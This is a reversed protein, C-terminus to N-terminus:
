WDKEVDSQRGKRDQMRFLQLSKERAKLADLIRETEKPSAEEVGLVEADGVDEDTLEEGAGSTGSERGDQEGEESQAENPKADGEGQGEPAESEEERPDSGEGDAGEPEGEKEDEGEDEGEGEEPKEDAGSEGGEEQEPQEDEAPEQEEQEEQQEQQKRRLLAELNRRALADDPDRALASKFSSIAQDLEGREAHLHGLGHLAERGVGGAGLAQAFAEQAEDLRGLAKLALGRNFHIAGRKPHKQLARDFHSLAGEADGAELAAIGAEVEPDPRELLDKGPLALLLLIGLLRM